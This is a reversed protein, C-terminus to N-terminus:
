DDLEAGKGRGMFAQRLWFVLMSFFMSTLIFVSKAMPLLALVVWTFLPFLILYMVDSKTVLHERKKQVSYIQLFLVVAVITPWVYNRASLDLGLFYVDIKTPPTVWSYLLDYHTFKLGGVFVQYLLVLVVGQIGLVVVKAWYNVRHEKLLDRTKEKRMIPDAKFDRELAEMKKNLREYKARNAEDVVTFPLLVLRLLVTMEIIAIGMNGFALGEYLWLLFNLLPRFLDNQWFEQM